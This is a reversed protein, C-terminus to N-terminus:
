RVSALLRLTKADLDDWEGAITREANREARTMGKVGFEHHTATNVASLVGYASHKWPAVREDYNWLRNLIAVKGDAMTKSRGELEKGSPNSFAQVFAAWVSDSVYESTLERVQADFEDGVQEVILGLSERIEGVRDLSNRSHRVKVKAADKERLAASLTNDCVVVTTGTLYTTALSGDHSTAATLFPRHKVGEAAERTEELEAQVAVRAGGRLSVASGVQLGGDLILDLNAVCWEKPPHIKYGESFVGFVAGTDKRVIAQRGAVQVATVGADDLYTATLDAKVLEFELLREVREIPVAGEFHNPIGDTTVGGRADWWANGRKETFGILSNDALWDLTETTM